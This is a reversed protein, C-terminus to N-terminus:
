AYKRKRTLFVIGMFGVGSLLVTSPEPTAVTSDQLTVNSFRVTGLVTANAVQSPTNFLSVGIQGTPITGGTTYQLTVSYYSGSLLSINLINAANLTSSVLTGSGDTLGIGFGDGSLVGANIVSGDYVYANLTYTTNPKYTQGSLSQYFSGSNYALSGLVNASTVGSIQAYGSGAYGGTTSINLGPALALALIGQYTGSWPGSGISVNSASGLISGVAGQNGSSTFDGNPITITVGFSPSCLGVFLFLLKFKTLKLLNV